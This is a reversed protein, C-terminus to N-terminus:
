EDEFGGNLVNVSGVAAYEPVGGDHRGDNLVVFAPERVVLRKVGAAKVRQRLDDPNIDRGFNGCQWAIYQGVAINVDAEIKASSSSIESGGPRNPIYYTFDVNYSIPAPDAALVHDTLPRVDRASCVKYADQKVQDGAPHGDKMLAYLRVEGASPSNAVADAIDASVSRIYYEYAGSAGACSYTDVSERMAKYYEADTAVDRGGSSETINACSDFYAINSVDVVKNIQGPAYGNGSAGTTQCVIPIDVYTGGIPVYMDDVTEWMLLGSTDTMRTGKPVLVASIQPKSINVREISRAPKASPRRFGHFLEGLADLNEGEARSPINQNACHNALSREALITNADWSIFIREPSAPDLTKGTLIEYTAVLTAVLKDPDLEFYIHALVPAIPKDMGVAVCQTQEYARLLAFVFEASPTSTTQHKGQAGM